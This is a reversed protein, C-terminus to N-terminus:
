RKSCLTDSSMTKDRLYAFGVASPHCVAISTGFQLTVLVTGIPADSPWMLKEVEVPVVVISTISYGSSLLSGLSVTPANADEAQALAPQAFIGLFGVFAAVLLKM